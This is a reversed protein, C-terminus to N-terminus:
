SWNIPNVYVFVMDGKWPLNIIVAFEYIQDHVHYIQVRIPFINYINYLQNYVNCM